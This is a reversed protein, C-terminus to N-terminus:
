GFWVPVTSYLRLLLWCLPTTALCLCLCLCPPWRRAKSCSCRPSRCHCARDTAAAKRRLEGNRREEGSSRSIGGGGRAHAKQRCRVVSRDPSAAAHTRWNTAKSLSSDAPPIRRAGGGGGPDGLSPGSCRTRSVGRESKTTHVLSAREQPKPKQPGARSPHRQCPAPHGGYVASWVWGVLGLHGM